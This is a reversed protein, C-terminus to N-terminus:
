VGLLRRDACSEVVALADAEALTFIHVAEQINMSSTLFHHHLMTLSAIKENAAHLDNHLDSLQVIGVYNQAADVVVVVRAAGLSISSRAQCISTDCTMVADPARMMSKVNLRRMWSVDLASRITEGRLHFRWTAFSYGFLRRVTLM